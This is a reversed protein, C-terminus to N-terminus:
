VKPQFKKWFFHDFIMTLVTRPHRFSGRKFKIAYKDVRPAIHSWVIIIPFTLFILNKFIGQMKNVTTEGLYYWHYWIIVYSMTHCWIIDYSM